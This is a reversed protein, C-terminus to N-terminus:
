NFSVTIVLPSDGDHDPAAIVAAAPGRALLGPDLALDLGFTSRSEVAGLIVAMPLRPPLPPAAQAPVRPVLNGTAPGAPADRAALLDQVSVPAGLWATVAVPEVVTARAQAVAGSSRDADAAVLLTSLLALTASRWHLPGTKM